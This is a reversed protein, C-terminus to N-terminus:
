LSRAAGDLYGATKASLRKKWVQKQVTYCFRDSPAGAKDTEKKSSRWSRRIHLQM